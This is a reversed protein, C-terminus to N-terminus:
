ENGSPVHNCQEDTEEKLYNRPMHLNVPPQFSALVRDREAPDDSLKYEAVTQQLVAAPVPQGQYPVKRAAYRLNARAEKIYIDALDDQKILSPKGVLKSKWHGSWFDWHCYLPIGAMAMHRHCWCDETEIVETEDENYGYRYYPTKLKDFVRMDYAILGTGMNVVREIGTSRAADERRIRDMKINREPADSERTTLEFVTVDELPPATCYPVGIASPERQDMLFDLAAEFFGLSPAMDDDIQFLIDVGRERAKKVCKNRAVPAPVQKTPVIYLDQVRQPNAAQWASAWAYFLGVEVRHSGSVVIPSIQVLPKM